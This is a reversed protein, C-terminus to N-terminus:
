HLLLMRAAMSGAFEMQSGGFVPFSLFVQLSALADFVTPLFSIM